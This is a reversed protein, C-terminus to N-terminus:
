NSGCDVSFRQQDSLRMATLCNGWVCGTDLAYVNATTPTVKGQLAAWHGFLIKENQTKRNEIAYWPQLHAAIPTDADGKFKLELEGETSCLRLRTFANTIYRLRDYGSLAESWASPENGYMQQLFKETDHLLASSVEAAHQQAQTLNWQPPIGAHVLTYGHQHHLLPQQLLWSILEDCDSADLIPQITHHTKLHIGHYYAALLFLDHNGLVTVAAAGLERVLRLVSLSDDGRNVLDGTFWLQHQSPDFKIKDLLKNLASYCGQVDGIAYINELLM